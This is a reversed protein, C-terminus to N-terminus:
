ESVFAETFVAVIAAGVKRQVPDADPGFLQEDVASVAKRADGLLRTGKATLEITSASGARATRDRVLGASVLTKVATHVSQVSISSMRALESFSAGPVGAIHGLLGLRGVTLDLPALAANLETEVRRALTLVLISASTVPPGPRDNETTM